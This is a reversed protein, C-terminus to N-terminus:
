SGGGTSYDKRGRLTRIHEILSMDSDVLPPPTDDSAEFEPLVIPDLDLDIDDIMANLSDAEDQLEDIISAIRANRDALDQEGLQALLRETAQELWDAKALEARRQLSPDHFPAIAQEAIERLVNPRLTALADIETQDVGYRARWGDARRESEKMPTSPLGLEKVQEVTLAPTHIQFQLSPYLSEKMARMKHGISVAMQYGSPDCDAFVFVIVERGDQAGTRAIMALHSNSIEGASLYLDADYKNAIPELVSGLSTKEGYIVLRYKQRPNFGTISISPFFDDSDPILYSRAGRIEIDPDDVSTVRIIPSDNRADIISTWPVYGLWRALNSAGELFDWCDLNNLYPSGNPLVADGLSIIAYYIGRNHIPRAANLLGARQMQDRLWQGDRHNAPTDFRFPDTDNSMVTLEKLSGVKHAKKTDRLIDGLSM